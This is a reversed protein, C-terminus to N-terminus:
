PRRCAPRSAHTALTAISPGGGRGRGPHTHGPSRERNLTKLAPARPMATTEGM